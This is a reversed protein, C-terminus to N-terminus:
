LRLMEVTDATEETPGDASYSSSSRSSSHSRRMSSTFLRSVEFFLSGMLLGLNPGRM